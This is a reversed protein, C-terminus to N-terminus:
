QQQFVDTILATIQKGDKFSSKGPLILLCNANVMSNLRSSIQKGTSRAFFYSDKLYYTARVYEPRVDDNRM